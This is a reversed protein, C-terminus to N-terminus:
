ATGRKLRLYEKEAGAEAIEIIRDPAIAGQYVYWLRGYQLSRLDIGNDGPRRKRERPMEIENKRLWALVSEKRYYPVRGVFTVPPGVRQKRWRQLTRPDKELQRALESESIYDDLVGFKEESKKESATM